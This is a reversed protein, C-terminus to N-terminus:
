IPMVRGRGSRGSAFLITKFKDDYIQAEKTLGSIIAYETMLAYLIANASAVGAFNEVEDEASKFRPMANYEVTVDGNPTGIFDIYLQYKVSGGGVRVDRISLVQDRFENFEIKGDTVTFKEVRVCDRYNGAINTLALNACRFLFDYNQTDTQPNIGLLGAAEDLINKLKM